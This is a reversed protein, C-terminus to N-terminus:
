CAREGRIRQQTGAQGLQVWGTATGIRSTRGGLPSRPRVHAERHRRREGSQDAHRRPQRYRAM